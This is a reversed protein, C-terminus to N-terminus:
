NTHQDLVQNVLKDAQWNKERPIYVYDLQLERRNKKLIQELEKIQDFYWRLNENKLKFIGNLQSVVLNSDLFFSIELNTLNTWNTLNTVLWKWAELVATYEAVNNTAHGLFFGASWLERLNDTPNGGQNSASENLVIIVASAAPGPNGRAGGDCYIALKM